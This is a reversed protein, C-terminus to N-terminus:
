KVVKAQPLLNFGWWLKFRQWKTPEIVPEPEPTKDVPKTTDSWYDLNAWYGNRYIETVEMTVDETLVYPREHGKFDFRHGKKFTKTVKRTDGETVETKVVNRFAPPMTDITKKPEPAPVPEPKM